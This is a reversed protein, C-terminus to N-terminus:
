VHARGIKEIFLKIVLPYKKFKLVLLGCTQTFNFNKDQLITFESFNKKKKKIDKLLHELSKKLSSTKLFSEGCQINQKPLMKKYFYDADYTQFIRKEYHSDARHYVDSEKEAQVFIEPIDSPPTRHISRTETTLIHVLFIAQYIKM